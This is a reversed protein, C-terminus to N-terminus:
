CVLYRIPLLRLRTQTNKTLRDPSRQSLLVCLTTDFEENARFSVIGVTVLAMVSALPM